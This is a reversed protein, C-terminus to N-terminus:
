KESSFKTKYPNLRPDNPSKKELEFFLSKEKQIQRTESYLQLLNIQPAIYNPFYFKVKELQDIAENIKKM